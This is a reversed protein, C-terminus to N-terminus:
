SYVQRLYEASRLSDSFFFWIEIKICCIFTFFLWGNFPAPISSM